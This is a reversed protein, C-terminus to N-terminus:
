IPLSKQISLNSFYRALFRGFTFKVKIINVSKLFEIAYSAYFPTFVSKNGICELFFTFVFSIKREVVESLSIWNEYEIYKQERKQDWGFCITSSEPLPTDM